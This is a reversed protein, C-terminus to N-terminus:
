FCIQEVERNVGVEKPGGDAQGKEQKKEKKNKDGPKVEPTSVRSGARNSRQPIGNSKKEPPRATKVAQGKKGQAEERQLEAQLGRRLHLLRYRLKENEARLGELEPSTVAIGAADLGGTLGDRLGSIEKTLLRIQEEQVALRAAMCEAM